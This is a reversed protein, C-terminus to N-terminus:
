VTFSQPILVARSVPVGGQVIGRTLAIFTVLASVVFVVGAVVPLGAARLWGIIAAFGLVALALAARDGAVGAGERSAGPRLIRGLDERANWAGLAVLVIMGGFAEYSVVPTNACYIEHAGTNM